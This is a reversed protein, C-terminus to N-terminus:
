KLNTPDARVHLNENLSDIINMEQESLEFDFIKINEEIREKHVSKPLPIAGHQLSWRLLVQYISKNHMAAIKKLSQNDLKEPQAGHAFPSHAELAIGSSKCYDLLAEQYLFPHFEVQNVAPITKAYKKMEELHAITYNSVGIARAKGSKYIEEMAKWTEERKDLSEKTDASATPWHVLYLDVYEVGLKALSVDIANLANSYGQDINWLKTTIFIEKRPLGSERIAKGVGEENKYIMATDIMRYGAQLAFKVSNVVEEGEPVRFVGFGIIPIELKNNLTIKSDLNL